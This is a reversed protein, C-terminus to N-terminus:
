RCVRRGAAGSARARSAGARVGRAAAVSVVVWSAASSRWAPRWRPMSVSALRIWAMKPVSNEVLEGEDLVGEAAV